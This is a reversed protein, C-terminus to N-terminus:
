SCSCLPGTGPSNSAWADGGYYSGGTAVYGGGDYYGMPSAYTYGGCTYGSSIYGPYTYGACYSAPAYGRCRHCAESSPAWAALLLWGLLLGGRLNRRM